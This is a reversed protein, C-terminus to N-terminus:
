GKSLNCDPNSGLADLKVAFQSHWDRDFVARLQGRLGQDSGALHPTSQTSVVLGVGATNEFYDESWNSTGIYAVKDTVMYKNHNVRAYPIDTQNAVPVIYLKVQISINHRPADLASLSQLFPLMAPDSDRGCSILMRVKVHREFASERLTDDILPWYRSPHSFRTTPFYEMVSVDIFREAEDMVSLIADLDQTRSSPCFAPPSGAIYIRHSTNETKVLLPHDQNINTHYKAPWPFPISSKTHGMVWYSSFIKHLDEALRSCNHIIVGLEKVQSLSRWDMNASGIYVHRKDVIWFKTHLVGGTLRGFNVRRVQVGKNRLFNLDTSNTSVSPISMVVRVSVNRSPLDGFQELIARGSLDTSTNVNIDEGTLTWYFSAVDVQKTAMSLLNKWGKELPTGFTANAGYQMYLPLSEVLTIRSEQDPVYNEDQSTVAPQVHEEVSLRELVAIALIVGMATLCVVALGLVGIRTLNRKNPVYSDHLNKYPSM